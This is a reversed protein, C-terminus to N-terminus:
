CRRWESARTTLPISESDRSKQAEIATSFLLPIGFREFDVSFPLQKLLYCYIILASGEQGKALHEQRLFRRELENTIKSVVENGSGSLAVYSERRLNELPFSERNLSEVLNSKRRFAPPGKARNRLEDWCIQFTACYVVNRTGDLPSDLYAEVRSSAYASALKPEPIDSLSPGTDPGWKVGQLPENKVGRGFFASILQRDVKPGIIRVHGDVFTLFVGDFAGTSKTTGAPFVKNRLDKRSLDRPEMWNIEGGSYETLMGTNSTGRECSATTASYQEPWITDRGVVALIHAEGAVTDRVLPHGFLYPRRNHYQKNHPSDWRENLHIQQYLDQQGMQPLILVRWSHLPRGEKDVTYAPPFAEFRDHYQHLALAIQKMQEKFASKRAGFVAQRTAVSLIYGLFVLGIALCGINWYGGVRKM